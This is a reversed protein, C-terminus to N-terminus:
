FTPTFYVGPGMRGSQSPLFGQKRIIAASTRDTGHYAIIYDKPCYKSLHTSNEQGCSRCYHSRHDESCGKALCM